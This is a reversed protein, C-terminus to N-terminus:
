SQSVNVTAVSTTVNIKDLFATPDNLYAYKFYPVRVDAAVTSIDEDPYIPNWLMMHLGETRQNSDTRVTFISEVGEIGLINNSLETISVVGGLTFGKFFNFVINYVSNQISDLSKTSGTQRLVELKTNQSVTPTLLETAADIVGIDAAMYVPDVVVTETTLTKKNRIDDIIANKQAIGLYNTRIITSSRKEIKPVSYIYVNNFDCSDAFNVSNLVTRADKNTTSTLGLTDILYTLHGDIYDTNNVVTVDKIFNSFTQKIYNEYDSTTVLRYQSSFLKPARERIDDVTEGVYFESSPDINSFVINSLHTQTSYNINQDKVNDFIERFQLTNYRVALSSDLTGPGIQGAPGESKLYYIAIAEGSNLKKGTRGDGFKLEYRKNENFRVEFARTSPSELFLSNTRRWQEWKGTNLDQIYVDINFHDIIIDDGPILSVVEFEDGNATILPYENFKGQYLLYTESFQKLQEKVTTTKSFTVDTPFSYLINGVDFYTYRPITYTGQPLFETATANFGVNSTQIGTPKYDLVKVIRNMNEYLEAESFMAETSTQNLYFLLVHYSYAIIDILSSINSGEYNQGTFTSNENLRQRILEKLSTADFAAYGDKPLSFDTLKQKPM